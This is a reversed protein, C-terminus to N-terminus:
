AMGVLEASIDWLRHAADGDRAASSPQAPRCKFFYGGTVGDVEPSSALYVSTLAGREASIAFPAGLRLGLAYAGRADGDRGFESRVFGPHLANVTVADDALRRSLELTFLLNALKSKSYVRFGVYHRKSQLDDFDLGSRAGKHAHSSVNVVRAGEANARLRDLLRNTLAFHGLHNVGFTVEFGDETEARQSLILGANNLLVDLRDYRDLVDDAFRHVSALSALDLEMVEVDAGDVRGRIEEIAARGRDTDRATIVVTAGERALGVAAEKGIGANGGTVVVVKGNMSVGNHDAM